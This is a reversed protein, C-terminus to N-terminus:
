RATGRLTCAISVTEGEVDFHARVFKATAFAKRQVGTTTVEEFTGLEYWSAGDESGEVTVDLTDESSVATTTLVLNLTHYQGAELVRSHGDITLPSVQPDLRVDTADVFRGKSDFYGM